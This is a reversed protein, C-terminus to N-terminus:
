VGGLLSHAKNTVRDRFTDKSRHAASRLLPNAAVTDSGFELTQAKYTEDPDNTEVSYKLMREDDSYQVKIKDALSSWESDSHRAENRLADQEDESIYDIATSIAAHYDKIVSEFYGIFEPTGKLLPTSSINPQTLSSGTM